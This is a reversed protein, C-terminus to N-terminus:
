GQGAVKHVCYGRGQALFVEEALVIGGAGGAVETAGPM